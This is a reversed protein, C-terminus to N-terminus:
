YGGRGGHQAAHALAIRIEEDTLRMDRDHDAHRRFWIIARHAVDESVYGDRGAQFGRALIDRGEQTLALWPDLMQSGPGQLRMSGQDLGSRDYAAGHYVYDGYRSGGPSGYAPSYDNYYACATVGLTLSLLAAIAPSRM